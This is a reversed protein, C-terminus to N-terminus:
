VAQDPRQTHSTYLDLAIKQASRKTTFPLSICLYIRYYELCFLFQESLELEDLWAAEQAPEFLVPTREELPGCDVPCAVTVTKARPVASNDKDSRLVCLREVGASQVLDVLATISEQPKTAKSSTMDATKRLKGLHPILIIFPNKSPCPMLSCHFRTLDERHLVSGLPM